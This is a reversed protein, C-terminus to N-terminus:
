KWSWNQEERYPISLSVAIEKLRTILEPSQELRKPIFLTMPGKLKLFLHTGTEAIYELESTNIKAEGGEESIRFHDPHIEVTTTQGIVAKYNERIHGRYFRVYRKRDYVPYLLFWLLGLATFVTAAIIKGNFFEWAGIGLYILPFLFKLVNRQKKIRKSRSAAYLSNTLYDDESVTYSVIM